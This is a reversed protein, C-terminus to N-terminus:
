VQNKNEQKQKQDLHTGNGEDEPKSHTGVISSVAPLMSELLSLVAKATELSEFPSSDSTSSGTSVELGGPEEYEVPPAIASDESRRRFLSMFRGGSMTPGDADEDVRGDPLTLGGGLYGTMPTRITNEHVFGHLRAQPLFASLEARRGHILVLPGNPRM